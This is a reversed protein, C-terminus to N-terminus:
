AAGRKRADAYDPASASASEREGSSQIRGESYVPLTVAVKTGVDKKATISLTGGHLEVLATAIALGLGLGGGESKIEGKAQAFPAAANKAEAATMGKGTDSFTIVVTNDEGPQASVNIRGEPSTYRLANELINQFVQKIKPIDVFVSQLGSDIKEKIAAQKEGKAGSLEKICPELIESITIEQCDVVMSGSQIKSIDIINNFINLLNVSSDYIYNSYEKIRAQSVKNKEANRMFESFGIIANLPTRLEHSMNAIFQSTVKTAREAEVRKAREAVEARHRLVAGGMLSVYEAILANGRQGSTTFRM